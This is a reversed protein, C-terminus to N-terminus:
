LSLRPVRDIAEIDSQATLYEGREYAFYGALGIMAANDGRYKKEPLLFHIDYSRIFNGLKRSLRESGYVGGGAFVSKIEPHDNLAKGLKVFITKKITELFEFCFDYVWETDKTHNDRLEKITLLCATKLGSYSFNYDKSHEMPIPLSIADNPKGSEAFESLIPGGPYGFGLMRGVKDFAEGAADDLTKGIKTYSGIKDVYLIETHKGSILMGLAPFLEELNSNNFQSNYPSKGKSNLLLSSLLHGEMHNVPVFPKSHEIALQQAFKLGVELD